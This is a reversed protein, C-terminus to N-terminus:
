SARTVNGKVILNTTKSITDITSSDNLTSASLADMDSKSGWASVRAGATGAVDCLSMDCVSITQTASSRHKSSVTAQMLWRSGHGDEADVGLM